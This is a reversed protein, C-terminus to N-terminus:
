LDNAEDVAFRVSEVTRSHDRRSNRPEPVRSFVPFSLRVSISRGTANTGDARSDRTIKTVRTRAHEAASFM